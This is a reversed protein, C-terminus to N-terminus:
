LGVLGFVMGLVVAVVFIVVWAVVAILLAKMNDVEAAERIGLLTGIVGLVLGVLSGLVPIVNLLQFVNVFGLVRLMEGTDTKGGFLGAVLATVWACVFWGILSGVVTRILLGVPNVMMGGLAAATSVLLASVLGVVLAVVVVIVGAMTTASKDEALARYEAAKFTIVGMLHNM